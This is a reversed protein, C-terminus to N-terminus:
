MAGPAGAGEKIRQFFVPKCSSCVWSQAFRIVEDPPFQKHCESCTLWQSVAVAGVNMAGYAKWEPMGEQWVMTERTIKGGRVLDQFESDALPGVQVGEDVYYWM